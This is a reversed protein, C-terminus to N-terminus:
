KMRINGHHPPLMQYKLMKAQASWTITTSIHICHIRGNTAYRYIFYLFPTKRCTTLSPMDTGNSAMRQHECLLSFRPGVPLVSVNLQDAKFPVFLPNTPIRLAKVAEKVSAESYRESDSVVQLHSFCLGNLSSDLLPTDTLFATAMRNLLEQKSKDVKCTLLEEVIKLVATRQRDMRESPPFIALTFQIKHTVESVLTFVLENVDDDRVLILSQRDLALSLFDCKNYDIGQADFADFLAQAVIETREVEAHWFMRWSKSVPLMSMFFYSPTLSSRVWPSVTEQIMTMM